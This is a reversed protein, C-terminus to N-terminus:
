SQAFRVWDFSFIFVHTDSTDSFLEECSLIFMLLIHWEVADFFTFLVPNRNWCKYVRLVLFSYTRKILRVTTDVNLFKVIINNDTITNRDRLVSVWVAFNLVYVKHCKSNDFNTETFTCKQKFPKQVRDIYKAIRIIIYKTNQIQKISLVHLINVKLSAVTAFFWM